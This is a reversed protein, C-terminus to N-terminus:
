RDDIPAFRSVSRLGCEMPSESTIKRYFQAAQGGVKASALRAQTAEPRENDTLIAVTLTRCDSVIVGEQTM